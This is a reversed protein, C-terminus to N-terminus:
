AGEDEIVDSTPTPEGPPTLVWKGQRSQPYRIGEADPETMGYGVGQEEAEILKPDDLRGILKQAEVGMEAALTMAFGVLRSDDKHEVTVHHETKATFGTLSLILQVAEWHHRGKRDKLKLSLENIAAPALSFLVRTAVERIAAAMKEQRILRYGSQAINGEYGAGRMAERMNTEGCGRIFALRQQKESKLATMAPGMFEQPIEFRGEMFEQPLADIPVDTV